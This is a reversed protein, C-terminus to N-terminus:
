VSQYEGRRCPILSLDLSCRKMKQEDTSLYARVSNRNIHGLMESIVPLPASSQLLRSAFTRRCIHIGDGPLRDFSDTGETRYKIRYHKRELKQAPGVSTIFVYEQDSERRENLIYDIIANQTAADIPIELDVGTKSQRIHITEKEWDIDGFKLSRIDCTRLGTHLALLLIAQDRKNVLSDPEDVLLDKEIQRDITTIIISGSSTHIHPLADHLTHCASYGKDEAFKLFIWLQRVERYVGGPKRGQFHESMFYDLIDKNRIESFDAIGNAELYLLMRRAASTEAKVTEAKKGTGIRWEQFVELLEVFSATEPMQLTLSLYHHWHTLEGVQQEALLHIFRHLAIWEVYSVSRASAPDHELSKAWELCHGLEFPRDADRLHEVLMETFRQHRKLVSRSTTGLRIVSNETEEALQRFSKEDFRM